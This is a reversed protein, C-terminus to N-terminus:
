SFNLDLSTRHDLLVIKSQQIMPYVCGITCVFYTKLFIHQCTGVTSWITMAYDLVQLFSTFNLDLSKRRDLLVM